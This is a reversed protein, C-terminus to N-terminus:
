NLKEEGHKLAHNIGLGMGTLAFFIPTVSVTSDNTLGLILFAIVSVLCAVGLKPLYGEYDEKWYIRLSSIIYWGFFILFAILSPVGTQVAIQLYMCHPKSILEGTHGSNYLGVLDNNPFAILFTDPGSGFWFYKKLLPLTRAWIYGRKNALHYHEELYQISGTQETLKMLSAGGGAAYYSTDNKKMLNSFYWTYDDIIVSFGQFDTARLSSITFPFREDEVLWTSETNQATTTAKCIVPNRNQDTLVFVDKEQSDQTAQIVLENGKYTITVNDKNTLIQELAYTEKETNFMSAMRHILVNDNLINVIIFTVMIAVIGIIGLKWNKLFKKRMCLLMVLLSPILAIIGARSQSAFLTLLLGLILAIYLLRQWLKKASLLLALLVPVLLAVYLGVYNPNYLTLYAQGKPFKFQLEMHRYKSPIMLARGLATNFFDHSFAQSLGILCMIAVGGTLYNMTRKVAATSRLIFFAYYVILVYGLLVWVPEFQEYIGHFSFHSYKSLFASLLAIVAYIILPILIKNWVPQKEETLFLFALIFIICCNTIHLWIMKFYLFFDMTTTRGSFWDFQSLGTDYLHLRVILPIVALIMILPLLLGLPYKKEPIDSTTNKKKSTTKTRSM